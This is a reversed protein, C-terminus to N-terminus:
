GGAVVLAGHVVAGQLQDDLRRAQAHAPHPEAEAPVEFDVAALPRHGPALRVRRLAHLAGIVVLHSGNALFRWLLAGPTFAGDAIRTFLGFMMKAEYVWDLTIGHRASFDAIFEDLKSNRKAYGGFHFDYDISWNGTASEFAEAQLRRM